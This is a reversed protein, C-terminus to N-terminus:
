GAAVRGFCGVPVAMSPCGCKPCLCIGKDRGAPIRDRVSVVYRTGCCDCSLALRANDPSVERDLRRIQRTTQM